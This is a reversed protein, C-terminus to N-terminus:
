ILEFNIVRKYKIAPYKVSFKNVTLTSFGQLKIHFTSIFSRLHKKNRITHQRIKVNLSAELETKKKKMQFHM